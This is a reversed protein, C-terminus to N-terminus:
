WQLPKHCAPCAALPTTLSEGCHYCYLEDALSRQPPPEADVTRWQEILQRVHDADFHIALIEHKTEFLPLTRPFQPDPVSVVAQIGHEQLYAALRHVAPLDLGRYVVTPESTTM